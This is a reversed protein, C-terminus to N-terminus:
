GQDGEIEIEGAIDCSCVMYGRKKPGPLVGRDIERTVGHAQLLQQKQKSLQM